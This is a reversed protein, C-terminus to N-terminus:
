AHSSVYFCIDAYLYLDRLYRYGIRKVEKPRWVSQCSYWIGFDQDESEGNM